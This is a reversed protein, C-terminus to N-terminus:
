PPVVLGTHARWREIMAELATLKLEMEAVKAMLNGCRRECEINARQATFNDRQAQQIEGRMARLQNELVDSDKRLSDVEAITSATFNSQSSFRGTAVVGVLSLVAGGILGFFALLEPAM